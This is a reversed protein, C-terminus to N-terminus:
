MGAAMGRAAEQMAPQTMTKPQARAQQATAQQQAAMQAQQQQMQLRQMLQEKITEKQPIDSLDILVPLIIDGPIGLKSAADTLAWFQSIRQTATNPTEGIVIDFDGVSLDNFTTQIAGQLPDNVIAQQNVTVFKQEGNDGIIRFTKEENYYQQVLGKRGRRGWLIKMIQLKARRLNDFLAAIHTIAQRQKLEIAKGSSSPSDTGMLAENIGTISPIDQTAEQGEQILATPSSPPEIRRVKAMGGPQTKVHVGPMAGFKVLKREQEPSMAGEESMWGSNAQTNLVHLKQSRRKNIERQVDKVDRVVGAPIDGEGIYYGLYPVFPFEGHEYPSDMQELEVEGVFVCVKVMDVPIITPIAEGTLLMPIQIQEKPILGEKTAYFTKRKREKFWCEILRVKKTDKQYWLPENAVYEDEDKDWVDTQARIFEAHESYVECLEEKDSWKARIIFRGDSYDIKRSEPDVYIDFPSVSKIMIEGDMALYDWDYSVEFWSRGCIAGNLFVQSEASAYDCEDMIYKTVGKRVETLPQDRATRPLFDVDYRNLRQWGSLINVQPKIKNVTIAPSGREAMKSKVAEDWQKGCYFEIDERAEDRWPKDKDVASKFWDRFKSVDAIPQVRPEETNEILM